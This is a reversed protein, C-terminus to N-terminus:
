CVKTKTSYSVIDSVSDVKELQEFVKSKSLVFKAKNM